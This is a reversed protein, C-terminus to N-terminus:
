LWGKKEWEKRTMESDWLRETAESLDETQANIGTEAICIHISIAATEKLCCYSGWDRIDFARNQKLLYTPGHEDPFGM